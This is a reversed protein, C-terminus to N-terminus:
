VKRKLADLWIGNKTKPIPWARLSFLYMARHFGVFLYVTDEGGDTQYRIRLPRFISMRRKFSEDFGLYLGKIKGYPINAELGDDGKLKLADRGLIVHGEHKHPPKKFIYYFQWGFGMGKVDEEYAFLVRGKM